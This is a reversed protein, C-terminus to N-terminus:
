RNCHAGQWRLEIDFFYIALICLVGHTKKGCANSFPKSICCRALLLPFSCIFKNLACRNIKNNIATKFAYPLTFM